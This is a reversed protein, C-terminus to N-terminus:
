TGHCEPSQRTHVQLRAPSNAQLFVCGHQSTESYTLSRLKLSGRSGGVVTMEFDM